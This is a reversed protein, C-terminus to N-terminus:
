DRLKWLKYKQNWKLILINHQQRVYDSANLKTLTEFKDILKKTSYLHSLTQATSLMFLIKEYLIDHEEKTTLWKIFHRRIIKWMYLEM